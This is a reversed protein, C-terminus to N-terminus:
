WKRSFAGLGKVRFPGVSAGGSGKQKKEGGVRTVGARALKKKGLMNTPFPPENSPREGCL